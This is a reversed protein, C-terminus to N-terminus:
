QKIIKYGRNFISVVIFGIITQFGDKFKLNKCQLNVTKLLLYYKKSKKYILAEKLFYKCRKIYFSTIAPMNFYSSDSLIKLMKERAYIESQIEEFNFKNIEQSLSNNHFRYQIIVQNLYEMKPKQLIMRMNFDWDDLNRLNEDFLSDQKELFLRNWFPGCVYYSIVGTFYDEIIQNSYITNEKIKRKTLLDVSELKAVVVDIGISYQNVISQFANKFYLDDSDFWNIYDGKSLEFGYNRCSNPGKLKNEPRKHYQFRKDKDLYKTIVQATNDTSGDDVIICEWNTYTQNIVSDLTEGIIHARNFTPIIISILPNNM